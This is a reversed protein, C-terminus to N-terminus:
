FEGFCVVRNRGLSKAVYLAADASKLLEDGNTALAGMSAQMVLGVSITVQLSSHGETDFKMSSAAGRIREAMAKAADAGSTQAQLVVFEEGGYRALIADAPLSEQLTKALRVLVLDGTAHGLTDNIKKFHDVDFILLCINQEANAPDQLIRSLQDMFFRRNYLGTLADTVAMKEIRRYADRTVDLMEDFGQALGGIEDTRRLAVRHNWDGAAVRATADWLQRIPKVIWQLVLLAFILHLASLVLVALVVLSGLGRIKGGIPKMDMVLLLMCDDHQALRLPLYFRMEQSDGDLQLNLSRGSFARQMTAQVAQVRYDKPLPLPQSSAFVSDDAAVLWYRHGSNKALSDLMSRATPLDSSDLDAVLGEVLEKAQYRTLDVLLGSQQSGIVYTFFAISALNMLLYLIAVHWALSKRVTRGSKM